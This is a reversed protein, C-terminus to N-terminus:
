RLKFYPLRIGGYPPSFVVEVERGALRSDDGDPQTGPVLRSYLIPGESLRIALFHIPVEDHFVEHQPRYVKTFSEIVGRGSVPRWSLAGRGCYPCCVRPYYVYRGCSPSDCRQLDLRGALCADWFPKNIPNVQPLPRAPQDM